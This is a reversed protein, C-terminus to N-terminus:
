GRKGKLRLGVLGAIGTGFLIMTAPEPAPNSGNPSINDISGTNPLPFPTSGSNTNITSYYTPIGGSLTLDTAFCLSMGLYLGQWQVKHDGFGLGDRIYISMDAADYGYGLAYHSGTASNFSLIVPKNANIDAAFSTYTFTYPFNSNKYIQQTFIDANYGANRVFQYLGYALDHDQVGENIADQPTYKEGGLYYHLYTVGNSFTGMDQAMVNMTYTVLANPTIITDLPLPGGPLPPPGGPILNSYSNGAYGNLEYYAMMMTGATPGCGIEGLYNPILGDLTVKDANATTSMLSLLGTIIVYFCIMKKQMGSIM